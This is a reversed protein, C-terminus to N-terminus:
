GNFKQKGSSRLVHFEFLLKQVSAKLDDIDARMNKMGENSAGGERKGKERLGSTPTKREKLKRGMKKMDLNQENATKQVKKLERKQEEVEITM